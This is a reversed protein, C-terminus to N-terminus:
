WLRRCKHSCINSDDLVPWTAHISFAIDSTGLPGIYCSFFFFFFIYIYRCVRTASHSSGSPQHSLPLEILNRLAKQSKLHSLSWEMTEKRTVVQTLPRGFTTAKWEMKTGIHWTNKAQFSHAFSLPPFLSISHSLYKLLCRFILKTLVDFKVQCMKWHLSYKVLYYLIIM